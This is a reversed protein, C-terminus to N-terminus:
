VYAETMSCWRWDSRRRYGQIIPHGTAGFPKWAHQGKTDRCCGVHGCTLCLNLAVWPDGTALCEECGDTRPAVDRVQDLHSCAAPTAEQETRGAM